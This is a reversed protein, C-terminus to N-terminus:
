KSGYILNYNYLKQYEQQAKLMKSLLISEEREKKFDQYEKLKSKIRPNM